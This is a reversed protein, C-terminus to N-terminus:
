KSRNDENVYQRGSVNKWPINIDYSLQTFIYCAM